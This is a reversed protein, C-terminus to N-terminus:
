RFLLFAALTKKLSAQKFIVAVHKKCNDLRFEDANRINSLYDNCPATLETRIRHSYDWVPLNIQLVIFGKQYYATRM